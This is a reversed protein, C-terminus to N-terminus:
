DWKSNAIANQVTDQMNQQATQINQVQVNQQAEYNSGAVKSLADNLDRVATSLEEISTSTGDIYGKIAKTQDGYFAESVSIQDFLGSTKTKVNEVFAAVADQCKTASTVGHTLGRFGSEYDRPKFTLYAEYDAAVDGCKNRIWKYASGLADGIAQAGSVIAGPIDIIQSITSTANAAFKIFDDLITSDDAGPESIGIGELKNSKAQWSAWNAAYTAIAGSAQTVTQETLDYLKRLRLSFVQEFQQEDPGVWEEQLTKQVKKFEEKEYLVLDKWTRGINDVLEDAKKLDFGLKGSNAAGAGAAAAANAAAAAVGAGIGGLEAM